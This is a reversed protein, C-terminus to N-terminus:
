STKVPACAGVKPWGLPHMHRSRRAGGPGSMVYRGRAGGGGCGHPCGGGRLTQSNYESAADACGLVTAYAACPFCSSISRVQFSGDAAVWASISRCLTDELVCARHPLILSGACGRGQVVSFTDLEVMGWVVRSRLVWRHSLVWCGHARGLALVSCLRGRLPPLALVTYLTCLGCAFM